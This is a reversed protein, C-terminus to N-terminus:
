DIIGCQFGSTKVHFDVSASCKTDGVRTDGGYSINGSVTSTIIPLVFTSMVVLFVMGIGIIFEIQEKKSRKYFQPLMLM